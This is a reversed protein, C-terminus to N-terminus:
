FEEPITNIFEMQYAGSLVEINDRFGKRLKKMAKSFNIDEWDGNGNKYIIGPKAVCGMDDLFSNCSTIM